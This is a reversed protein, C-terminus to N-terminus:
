CCWRSPTSASQHSPFHMASMCLNTTGNSPLPPDGDYQLRRRRHESSARSGPWCTLALRLSSASWTSCAMERIPVRTGAVAQNGDVPHENNRCPPMPMRSERRDITLKLEVPRAAALVEILGQRALASTEPGTFNGEDVTAMAEALAGVGVGRRVSAKGVPRRCHRCRPPAGQDGALGGRAIGLADATARGLSRAINNAGGLPLIAIPISRDRLHSIVKLVTGDGGAAVILDAPEGLADAFDPQKTSRYRSAIGGAALAALLDSLLSTAAAPPASQAPRDRAGNGVGFHNLFRRAPRRHAHWSITGQSLRDALPLRHRAFCTGRDWLSKRPVCWSCNSPASHHEGAGHGSCPRFTADILHDCHRM